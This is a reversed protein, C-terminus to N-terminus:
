DIWGTKMNYSKLDKETVLDDNLMSKLTTLHTMYVQYNQMGRNYIANWLGKLDKVKFDLGYGPSITDWKGNNMPITHNDQLGSEICFNKTAWITDKSAEFLAPETGDEPTYLIPKSKSEEYLIELEKAMDNFPIEKNEKKPVTVWEGYAFIVYHNEDTEPPPIITCNRPLIRPDEDSSSLYMGSEDYHYAKM